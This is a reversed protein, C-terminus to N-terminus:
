RSALEEDTMEAAEGSTGDEDQEEAEKGADGAEEAVNDSGGEVSTAEASDFKLEGDADDPQEEGPQSPKQVTKSVKDIGQYFVQARNAACLASLPAYHTSNPTATALGNRGWFLFM